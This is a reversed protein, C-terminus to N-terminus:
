ACTLMTLCICIRVRWRNGMAAQSKLIFADDQPTFPAGSLQPDLYEVWKERCRKASAVTLRNQFPVNSASASATFTSPLKLGHFKENILMARLWPGSNIVSM